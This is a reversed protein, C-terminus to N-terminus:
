DQPLNPPNKLVDNKKKEPLLLITMGTTLIVGGAIWYWTKKRGRPLKLSEFGKKAEHYPKLIAPSENSPIKFNKDIKLAELFHQKARDPLNETVFCYALIRHAETREKTDGLGLALAQELANIAESLELAKWHELGKALADKASTQAGAFTPIIIEWAQALLFCTLVMRSSIRFVPGKTNLAM